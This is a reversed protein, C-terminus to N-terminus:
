EAAIMRLPANGLIQWLMQTQQEHGQGTRCVLVGEAIDAARGGHLHLLNLACQLAPLSPNYAANEAYRGSFIQGGRTRLAFGAHANSYPAHSTQAASLAAQGLEDRVDAHLAHRVPHLLGATVGLDAPGFRGPLHDGLAMDRAHPLHVHLHEAGHLESMFQRCHGCPAHTVVLHAIRTAGGMWAHAIASQEAHITQGLSAGAFEQNAGFWANGASDIAVAGVHFRSVPVVAFAAAEPLLGLAAAIIDGDKTLAQLAKTNLYIRGM